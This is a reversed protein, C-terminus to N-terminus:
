KLPPTVGAPAGLKNKAVRCDLVPQPTQAFPAPVLGLQLEPEHAPPQKCVAAIEFSTKPQPLRPAPM